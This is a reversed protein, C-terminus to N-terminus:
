DFISILLFTYVASINRISLKAGAMTGKEKVTSVAACLYLGTDSAQLKLLDLRMHRKAPNGSKSGEGKLRDKLEPPIDEITKSGPPLYALVKLETKGPFQRYLYFRYDTDDVSCSFSINQGTSESFFSPTQTVTVASGSGVFSFLLAPVPCFHAGWKGE